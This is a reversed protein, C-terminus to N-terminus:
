QSNIINMIKNAQHIKDNIAEKNSVSIHERFSRLQEIYADLDELVPSSNEEFIPTWTSAASAALRVTSSFGGGALSLVRKENKEKEQVCLSLAFSAIHSIHSVYAASIDHPVSKMKLVKMNLTKYMEKVVGLAHPSSKETDCLIVSKNDFLGSFAASPGSYETGAMPHGAVFCDRNPHADAIATICGKTSGTDTVVRGNKGAISLVDPLIRKISDVPLALIILDSLGSAEELSATEDIIGASKADRLHCPNNDVGTIRDAFGRRKLDIAM